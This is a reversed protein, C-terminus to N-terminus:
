KGENWYIKVNKTARGVAVLDIHGDGNLDGAALDEIAVSGPDVIQRTWKTGAEQPDYIRVGCKVTDNLNDRVGIILEQDEDADLNACSVAHGWKLEEDLVRRNWLWEGTSPREGAPRNYTM